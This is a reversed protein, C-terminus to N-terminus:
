QFSNLLDRIALIPFFVHSLYSLLSSSLLLCSQLTLQWHCGALTDSSFVALCPLLWSLNCVTKIHLILILVTVFQRLIIFAYVYLIESAQYLQYYVYEESLYM